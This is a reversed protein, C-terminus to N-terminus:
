TSKPSPTSFGLMGMESKLDLSVRCIVPETLLIPLYQGMKKRPRAKWQEVMDLRYWVLLILGYARYIRVFGDLRSGAIVVSTSVGWVVNAMWEDYKKVQNSRSRVREQTNKPKEVSEEFKGPGGTPTADLLMLRVWVLLKQQTRKPLPRWGTLTRLLASKTNRGDAKKQRGRDGEAEM